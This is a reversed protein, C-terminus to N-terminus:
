SVKIGAKKIIPIWHRSESEVFALSVQPNRLDPTSEARHVPHPHHIAAHGSLKSTRLTFSHLFDAESILASGHGAQALHMGTQLKQVILIIFSM